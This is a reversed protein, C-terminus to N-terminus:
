KLWANVCITSSESRVLHKRPLRQMGKIFSAVAPASADHCIHNEIVNKRILKRM